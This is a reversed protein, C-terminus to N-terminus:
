DYKLKLKINKYILNIMKLKEIQGHAYLGGEGDCIGLIKKPLNINDVIILSLTSVIYLTIM